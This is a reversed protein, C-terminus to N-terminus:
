LFAGPIYVTIVEWDDTDGIICSGMLAYLSVTPSSSEERTIYEQQPRGDACGHAKLKGCRKRKLFM